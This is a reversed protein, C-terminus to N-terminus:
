IRKGMSFIEKRHTSDLFPFHTMSAEPKVHICVIYLKGDKLNNLLGRM